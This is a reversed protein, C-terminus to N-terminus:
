PQPDKPFVVIATVGCIVGVIVGGTVAWVYDSMGTEDGRTSSWM